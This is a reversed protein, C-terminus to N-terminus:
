AIDKLTIGIDNQIGISQKALDRPVYAEDKNICIYTALPNNKTMKWFPYKIIVPTNGGVGLELYTM